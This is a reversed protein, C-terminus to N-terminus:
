HLLAQVDARSIGEVVVVKNRGREGKVITVASKSVKLHEALLAVLEANAAGEVPPAALRIKIAEGHTGDIESRSARPQVRVEFLVGGEREEIRVM